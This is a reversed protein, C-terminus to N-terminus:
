IFLKYIKLRFTSEDHAILIRTNSKDKPQVWYYEKPSKKLNSDMASYEKKMYILHSDKRDMFYKVFENRKKVVDEREHGNIFPRLKNKGWFFGWTSILENLCKATIQHENLEPAYSPILSISYKQLIDKNLTAEKKSVEAITFEKIKETFDPFREYINDRHYRGRNEEFIAEEDGNLFKSTYRHATRDCFSGIKSLISGIKNRDWQDLRAAMYIAVSLIREHIHTWNKDDRVKSMFIQLHTESLSDIDFQEEEKKDEDFKPIEIDNRKVKVKNAISLSNTHKSNFRIAKKLYKGKKKILNKRKGM